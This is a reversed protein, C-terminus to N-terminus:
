YLAKQGDSDQYQNTITAEKEKKPLLYTVM